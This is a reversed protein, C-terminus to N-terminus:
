RSGGKSRTSFGVVASDFTTAPRVPNVTGGFPLRRVRLNEQVGSWLFVASNRARNPRRKNHPSDFGATSNAVVRDPEGVAGRSTLPKQRRRLRIEWLTPAFTAQESM